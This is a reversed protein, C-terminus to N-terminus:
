IEEKHQVGFSDFQNFHRYDGIIIVIYWISLYKFFLLPM